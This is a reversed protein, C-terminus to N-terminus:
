DGPQLESSQITNFMKQKKKRLTTMTQGKIGVLHVYHSHLTQAAHIHLDKFWINFWSILTFLSIFLHIYPYSFHHMLVKGSLVFPTIPLAAFPLWGCSYGLSELIGLLLGPRPLEKRRRGQGSSGPEPLCRAGRWSRGDPGPLHRGAWHHQPVAIARGSKHHAHQLAGSLRQM